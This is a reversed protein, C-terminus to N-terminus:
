KASGRVSATAAARIRPMPDAFDVSDLLAFGGTPEAIGRLSQRRPEDVGTNQVLKSPLGAANMAFVIVNGRRAAGSFSFARASARESDYGNSIYLLVRRRHPSVPVNGLLDTAASFAIGHRFGIEERVAKSGSSIESAHLGAGTVTRIAPDLRARDSGVGINIASAGSSRMAFVDEDRILETSISRLLLRVRGTDRFNIHLDDVFILWTM